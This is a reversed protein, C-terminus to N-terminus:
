CYGPIRLDGVVSISEESFALWFEDDDVVDLIFQNSFYPGHHFVVGQIVRVVVEFHCLLILRGSIEMWFTQDNAYIARTDLHSAGVIVGPFCRM